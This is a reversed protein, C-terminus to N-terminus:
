LFKFCVLTSFNSNFILTFCKQTASLIEPSRDRADLTNKQVGTTLADGTVCHNKFWRNVM